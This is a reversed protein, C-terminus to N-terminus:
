DDFDLPQKEVIASFSAEDYKKVKFRAFIHM